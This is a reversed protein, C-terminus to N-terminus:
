DFVQAERVAAEERRPLGHKFTTLAPVVQRRLVWALPKWTYRISPTNFQLRDEKTRGSSPLGLTARIGRSLGGLDLTTLGRRKM